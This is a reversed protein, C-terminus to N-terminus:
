TRVDTHSTKHSVINKILMLIESRKQFASFSFKSRYSVLVITFTKTENYTKVCFINQEM